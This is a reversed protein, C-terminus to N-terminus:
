YTVTIISIKKMCKTYTIILGGTETRNVFEVIARVFNHNLISDDM